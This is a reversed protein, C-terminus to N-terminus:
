VHDYGGLYGAPITLKVITCGPESQINLLDTQGYLYEIRKNINRLGIKSEDKDDFLQSIRSQSIGVGNDQIEVIVNGEQKFVSIKLHGGKELPEIGHIIANEVLPQLVLYPARVALLSEDIDFEFKIRDAFRINQIYIYEKVNNIEDGLTVDEKNIKGLNYRLLDATSEILKLTEDAQEFMAMRAITNLTNFLFHPNIQNQLVKLESQKLETLTKLNKLEEERLKGEMNANEKIQHILNRINAAMKNFSASLIGLEDDSSVKVDNVNLDGAAIRETRRSLSAIPQTISRTFYLIIFVNFIVVIVLSVLFIITNRANLAYVQQYIVKSQVIDQSIIETIRTNIFGELKRLYAAEELYSNSAKLNALATGATEQYTEIMKALGHVAPWSASNVANKDLLNAQAQLSALRDQVESLRDEDSRVTFTLLDEVKSNIQNFGSSLSDFEYISELLGNYKEVVHNTYIFTYINFSAMLILILLSYFLLKKKVTRFRLRQRSFFKRVPKDAM